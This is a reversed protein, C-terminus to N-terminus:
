LSTHQCTFALAGAYHVLEVAKNNDTEAVGTGKKKAAKNHTDGAELEINFDVEFM